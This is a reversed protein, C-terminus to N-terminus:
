QPPLNGNEDTVFFTDAVKKAVELPPVAERWIPDDPPASLSVHFDVYRRDSRRTAAFANASRVAQGGLSGSLEYAIVLHGNSMQEFVPKGVTFGAKGLEGQIGRYIAELHESLEYRTEGADAVRASVNFIDRSAQVIAGPADSDERKWEAGPLIALVTKQECSVLSM